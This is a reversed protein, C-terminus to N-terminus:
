LPFFFLQYISTIKKQFRNFRNLTTTKKKKRSIIIVRIEIMKHKQKYFYDPIKPKRFQM